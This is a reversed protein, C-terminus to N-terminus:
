QRLDARNLKKITHSTSKARKQGKKTLARDIMEREQQARVQAAEESSAPPAPAAPKEEGVMPSLPVATPVKAPASTAEHRLRQANALRLRERTSDEATLMPNPPPTTRVVRYVTTETTSDTTSTVQQAHATGLALLALGTALCATKMTKMAM